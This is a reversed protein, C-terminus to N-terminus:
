ISRGAHAMLRDALPADDSCAVPRTVRGAILSAEASHEVACSITSM